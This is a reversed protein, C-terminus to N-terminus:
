HDHQCLAAPDELDVALRRLLLGPELPQVFDCGGCIQVKLAM